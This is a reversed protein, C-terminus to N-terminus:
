ALSYAQNPKIFTLAQWPLLSLASVHIEPCWYSRAPAIDSTSVCNVGIFRRLAREMYAFFLARIRLWSNQRDMVCSTMFIGEAVLPDM